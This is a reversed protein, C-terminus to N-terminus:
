STKFVEQELKEIRDSHDSQRHVIIEREQDFKQFQGAIDTLQEMILDFKKNMDAKLSDTAGDIKQDLESFLRWVFKETAVQDKKPKPM